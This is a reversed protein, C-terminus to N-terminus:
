AREGVLRATSSAHIHLGDHLGYRPLAVRGQLHLTRGSSGLLFLRYRSTM